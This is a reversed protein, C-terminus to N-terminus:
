TRAWRRLTAIALLALPIAPVLIAFTLWPFRDAPRKRAAPAAATPAPAAPPFADIPHYPDSDAHDWARAPAEMVKDLAARRIQEQERYLREAIDQQTEQAFAPAALAVLVLFASAARV